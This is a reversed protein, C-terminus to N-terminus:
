IAATGWVVYSIRTDSRSLTSVKASGSEGGAKNSDILGYGRRRMDCWWRRRMRM